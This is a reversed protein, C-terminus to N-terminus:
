AMMAVARKVFGEVHETEDDAIPLTCEFLVEARDEDLYVALTMTRRSSDTTQQSTASGSLPLPVWRLALPPLATTSEALALGAATLTANSM